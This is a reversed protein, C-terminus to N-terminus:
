RTRRCWAILISLPAMGGLVWLLPLRVIGIAVFTATAIALMVVSKRVNRAMKIGMSLVLGSAGAAVGTFAHRVIEVDSFRAYIVALLLVIVMPMLMLGLFAVIAGRPGQFRRGIMVTVNVINPGPLFQALSLVEAFEAETLWAHREVLMRYAFPMVGGFGSLGTELFRFFLARTSVVPSPSSALTSDM